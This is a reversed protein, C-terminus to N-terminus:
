GPVWLADPDFQPIRHLVCLGSILIRRSLALSRPLLLGGATEPLEPDRRYLSPGDCEGAGILRRRIREFGGLRAVGGGALAFAGSQAVEVGSVLM